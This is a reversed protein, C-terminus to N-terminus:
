ANCEPKSNDNGCRLMKYVINWNLSFIFPVIIALSSSCIAIIKKYGFLIVHFPLLSSSPDSWWCLQARLSHLRLGLLSPLPAGASRPWRISFLFFHVFVFFVLSNMWWCFYLFVAMLCCIKLMTWSNWTGDGYAKVCLRCIRCEDEPLGTHFLIHYWSSSKQSDSYM